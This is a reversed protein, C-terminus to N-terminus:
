PPEAIPKWHFRPVTHPFSDSAEGPYRVVLYERGSDLVVCATDPAYRYSPGIYEVTSGVPINQVVIKSKRKARM